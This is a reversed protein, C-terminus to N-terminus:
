PTAGATSMDSPAASGTHGHRASAVHDGAAIADARCMYQGNKTRGYYPDSAEHYTHRKANVWVIADKCTLGAPIPAAQALPPRQGGTTGMDTAAAMPAATSSSSSSSGGGCGAVVAAALASVCATALFPMRLM